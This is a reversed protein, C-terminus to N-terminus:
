RGAAQRALGDGTLGGLGGWLREGSCTNTWGPGPMGTQSVIGVRMEWDEGAGQRGATM